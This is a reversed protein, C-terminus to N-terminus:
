QIGAPLFTLTRDPYRNLWSRSRTPHIYKLYFRSYNDSLRYKLYKLARSDSVVLGPATSFAPASSITWHQTLTRRTPVWRVAIEQSDKAGKLSNSFL